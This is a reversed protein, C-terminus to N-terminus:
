TSNLFTIKWIGVIVVLTKYAWARNEENKLEDEQLIHAKTIGLNNKNKGSKLRTIRIFLIRTFFFRTNTGATVIWDTAGGNFFSLM